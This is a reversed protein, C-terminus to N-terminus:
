RRTRTRSSWRCRAACRCSSRARRTRSTRAASACRAAPRSSCACSRARCRRRAAARSASWGSRRARSSRSRSTTSPTCPASSATSSSGRSSRSTCSSTSSRSCRRAPAAGNRRARGSMGRGPGAQADVARRRRRAGARDRGARDRAAPAQPRGAALLPRSHTPRRAASRAELPPVKVCQELEHPCRPRLHCGQPRNALSPPLGPITPLRARRPRDIRTIAGLLGWTYPHQPDYFIDDLTGQEVIRGAYMVAVNDAIDAVVGLDHTVLIVGANTEDRLERFRQLIQAQVTVDLATTPEDAILVSPDCSLALAIMVRQRM